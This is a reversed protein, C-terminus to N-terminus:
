RSMCECAHLCVFCGNFVNLGMLVNMLFLVWFYHHHPLVFCHFQINNWALPSIIFDFM